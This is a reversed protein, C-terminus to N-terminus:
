GAAKCKSHRIRQLFRPTQTHQIRKGLLRRSLGCASEEEAFPEMAGNESIYGTGKAKLLWLM